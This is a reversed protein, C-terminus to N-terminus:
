DDHGWGEYEADDLLDSFPARPMLPTNGFGRHQGVGDHEPLRLQKRRRELTAAVKQDRLNRTVHEIDHSLATTLPRIAEAWAEVIDDGFQSLAGKESNLRTVQQQWRTNKAVAPDIVLRHSAFLPELVQLIRQEKNLTRGASFGEVQCSWGDVFQDDKGPQVSLQDVVARLMNLTPDGGWDMEIRILSVGWNRAIKVLKVLMQDDCPQNKGGMGGVVPTHIKASYSMAIAYGTLDVGAGAPDISMVCRHYPEREESVWAPGYFRDGDFGALDIGEILTSNNGATHGYAIRTPAMERDIPFVITHDLRLPFKDSGSADPILMHERKFVRNGERKLKAVRQPTIVDAAVIEGPGLEGSEIKERIAPSMFPVIEGPGPVLIPYATVDDGKKARRTYVSDFDHRYTGIWHFVGSGDGGGYESGPDWSALNMLESFFEELNNRATPTITNQKTECDDAIAFHCRNSETVGKTAVSAISPQRIPSCPAVDLEDDSWRYGKKKEADLHKLWPYRKIRQKIGNIFRKATPKDKSVILTCTDPRGYKRWATLIENLFSSKGIGRNGVWGKPFEGHQLRELMDYNVWSMYQSQGDYRMCQEAFVVLSRRMQSVLRDSEKAM